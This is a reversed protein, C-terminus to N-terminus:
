REVGEAERIKNWCIGCFYLFAKKYNWGFKQQSIEVAHLCDELGIKEVFRKMSMFHDMPIGKVGTYFELYMNVLEQADAEIRMRRRKLVAQYGAVQAEREITDAARDAMSQPVDKLPINSKGRNCPQCATVLNDIETAGGLSVPDVHDCELLVAPPHAGCYACQFGDRKFVDFRLRKSIPVRTPAPSEDIIEGM